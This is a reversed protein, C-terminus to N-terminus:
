EAPMRCSQTKFYKNNEIILKIKSIEILYDCCKELNDEPFVRKVFHYKDKTQGEFVIDMGDFGEMGIYPEMTWFGSLNILGFLNQWDDIKLKITTDVILNINNEPPIISDADPYQKRLSDINTNLALIPGFSKIIKKSKQYRVKNDHTYVKAFIDPNESLMKSNVLVDKGCKKITILIPRSQYPNFLWLLRYSEGGLYYNFLVPVKFFRLILSFYNNFYSYDVKEETDKAINVWKDNIFCKDPFYLKSSDTLFGDLNSITSDKLYGKGDLIDRQDCNNYNCGIM